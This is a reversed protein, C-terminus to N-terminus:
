AALRELLEDPRRRFEEVCYPCRCFHIERGAHSISVALHKPREALCTPCVIWDAFERLYGGPDQDFLRACGQCCFLLEEGDRGHRTADARSIGLRVLSCGCTPCISGM